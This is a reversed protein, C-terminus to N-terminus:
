TGILTQYIHQILQQLLPLLVLLISLILQFLQLFLLILQELLELLPAPLDAIYQYNLQGGVITYSYMKTTRTDSCAANTTNCANDTVIIQKQGNQLFDDAVISSGGWRLDGPRGRNEPDLGEVSRRRSVQAPAFAGTNKDTKHQLISLTSIPDSRQLRFRFQFLSM